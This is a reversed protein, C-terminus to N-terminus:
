IKAKIKSIYWVIPIALCLLVLMIYGFNDIYKAILEYSSGVYWGILIFILSKIATATTTVLVFKGIDVKAVGAMTLVISNPAHTFKGFFITKWIKKKSFHDEMKNLRYPTVGIYKGYKPLITYRGYRGLWYHSLDGIIDGLIVIVYVIYINLIHQSALFAAIVTIIPGEVISIPLLIYYTYQSLLLLTHEM